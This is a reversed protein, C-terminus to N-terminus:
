NRLLFPIGSLQVEVVLESQMDGDLPIRPLSTLRNKDESVILMRKTTVATKFGAAAVADCVVEDFSGYPYSCHNCDRGLMKEIASRSSQLEDTLSNEDLGPLLAHTKSHAGITVLKEQALKNLDRWSMIEQHCLAKVDVDHQAAFTRIVERRSQESTRMLYRRLSQFTLNKESLTETRVVSPFGEIELKVQASSGIVNELVYWWLQGGGDPWDSPVYVTFPADAQQFVPLAYQFNDRYGDDFTFVAFRGETGDRLRDAAEDISIIDLGLKRVLLIIRHLFAPEITLHRNPSFARRSSGQPDVRHCMFIVGATNRRTPFMRHFGAAGFSRLAM